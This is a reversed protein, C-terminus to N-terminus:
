VEIKSGTYGPKSEDTTHSKGNGGTVLNYEAELVKVTQHLGITEVLANYDPDHSSFSGSETEDSYGNVPVPAKSQEAATSSSSVLRDSFRRM